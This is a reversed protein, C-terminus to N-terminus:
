RNPREITMRKAIAQTWVTASEEANPRSGPTSLSIQKAASKTVRHIWRIRTVKRYCRM